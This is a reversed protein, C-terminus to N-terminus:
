GIGFGRSKETLFLCDMYIYYFADWTSFQKTYSAYGALKHNWEVVLCFCLYNEATM